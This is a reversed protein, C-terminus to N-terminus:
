NRPGRSDSVSSVARLAFKQVKGMANKPLDDMFRVAAPHKYRALRNEFLQLVAKQSMQEGERLVVCALPVEGWAADPQGVVAFEAIAPCDALVNELEAPYINEGGSIIMDKKRDDVYFYGEGDTHGLDGSRFWDGHFAAETAEANDWYAELVNPGRLWIEGTTDPGLDRGDDDVIRAECHPVAKGISGMKRAADEISLAIAIPGTETMGYIQTAPIDRELWPRLLSDPVSSSGTGVMRLSSLDTSDWGPHQILASIVAPVALFLTPRDEEILRLTAAPEFRDLLSICAGAYLAPTTQINMGGVHFMPLATLIHDASTMEHIAISNLANYFIAEQSLVAGKPQGTTGSTYVLFLPDGIQAPHIAGSASGASLLDEYGLWGGAPAAGGYAIKRWGPAKPAIADAHALFDEGAFLASASCNELMWAHESPTLRWILPTLISGVRACAFFLDILEPANYGLYAVRDGKQIGLERSLVGALRDGRADLEGYAIAKGVYRLAIKDSSEDAWGTILRSIDHKGPSPM